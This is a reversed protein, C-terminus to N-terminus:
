VLEAIANATEWIGCHVITTSCHNTSRGFSLGPDIFTSTYVVFANAESVCFIACTLIRYYVSHAFNLHRRILRIM